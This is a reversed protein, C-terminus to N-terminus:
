YGSGGIALHPLPRTLIGYTIGGQTDDDNVTDTWEYGFGISFINTGFGTSLRYKGGWYAGWDNSYMTGFGLGPLATFIGVESVGEVNLGTGSVAFLADFSHVHALVAPNIYGYLGIDMLGPPALLYETYNYYQSYQFEQAYCVTCSLQLILILLFCIKKVPGSRKIM